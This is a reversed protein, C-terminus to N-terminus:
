HHAYENGQNITRLKEALARVGHADTEPCLILFAEGGWREPIDMDFPAM